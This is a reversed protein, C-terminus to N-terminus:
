DGRSRDRDPTRSGNPQREQALPPATAAVGPARVGRPPDAIDALRKAELIRRTVTIIEDIDPSFVGECSALQSVGSLHRAFIHQLKLALQLYCSPCRPPGIELVPTHLPSVVMNSLGAGHPAVIMTAQAFLQLQERVPEKGFFEVIDHAPFHAQLAERVQDNNGLMRKTERVILVIIPKSTPPAVGATEPYLKKLLASRLLNIMVANPQGCGTSDPLFALKAHIPKSVFILRAPNLGLLEAFQEMHTEKAKEGAHVAIKIDPHELLVDLMLTIRPLIESLFHYFADGWYQTIVLVQDYRRAERPRQPIGKVGPGKKCSKPLIYNNENFIFGDRSIFVDAMSAVTPVTEYGMSAAQPIEVNAQGYYPSLYIGAMDNGAKVADLFRHFRHIPWQTRSELHLMGRGFLSTNFILFYSQLTKVFDLDNVPWISDNTAILGPRPVVVAGEVQSMEQGFSSFESHRHKGHSCTQNLCHGQMSAAGALHCWVNAVQSEEMDHWDSAPLSFVGDEGCGDPFRPSEVDTGWFQHAYNESRLSFYPGSSAGSPSHSKSSREPIWFLLTGIAAASLAAVSFVSVLDIVRCGALTWNGTSYVCSLQDPM